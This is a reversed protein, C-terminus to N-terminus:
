EETEKKGNKKPKEEVEKISGNLEALKKKEYDPMNDEM